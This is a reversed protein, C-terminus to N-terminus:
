LSRSQQAPLRDEANRREAGDARHGKDRGVPLIQAIKVQPHETQEEAQHRHNQAHLLAPKKGREGLPQKRSAPLHPKQQQHQDQQGEEARHQHGIINRQDGENREGDKHEAQSSPPVQQDACHHKLRQRSIEAAHGRRDPIRLIEEKVSAVAKCRPLKEGGDERQRECAQQRERSGGEPGAAFCNLDM